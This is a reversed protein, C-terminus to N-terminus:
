RRCQLARHADDRIILSALHLKGDYVSAFVYTGALASVHRQDSTNLLFGDKKMAHAFSGTLDFYKDCGSGVNEGDLKRQVSNSLFFVKTDAKEITPLFEFAIYFSGRLPEVFEGLDLEGGGAIFSLATNHGKLVGKNKEILYVKLPEFATEPAPSEGEPKAEEKKAGPEGPKKVTLEVLKAWLSAPIKVEGAQPKVTREEYTENKWSPGKKCGGFGACVFAILVLAVYKM